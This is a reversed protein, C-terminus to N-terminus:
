IFADSVDSTDSWRKAMPKNFSMIKNWRTKREEETYDEPKKGLIHVFSNYFCMEEFPIPYKKRLESIEQDTM